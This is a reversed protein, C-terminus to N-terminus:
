EAEEDSVARPAVSRSDYEPIEGTSERESGDNTKSALSAGCGADENHTQWWKETLAAEHSLDLETMAEFSERGMTHLQRHCRGCLPVISTYPGKLGMGGNETHANDSPTEACNRCPLAQVFAVREPSHYAAVFRRRKRLANIPKVRVSRKM